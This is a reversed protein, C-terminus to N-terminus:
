STGKVVEGLGKKALSVECCHPDQKAFDSQSIVLALWM